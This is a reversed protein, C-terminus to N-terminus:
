LFVRDITLDGYPSVGKKSIFVPTCCPYVSSCNSNM